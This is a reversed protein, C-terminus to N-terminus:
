LERQRVPVVGFFGLVFGVHNCLKVLYLMFLHQGRLFLIPLAITYLPLAIISKALNLFRRKRHKLTNAGQLLARKLLFHRRWRHPPVTEYVIAESCWVFTRGSEMARRFFDQDEGGTGFDPKFPGEM